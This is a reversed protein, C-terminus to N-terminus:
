IVHKKEESQIRKAKVSDPKVGSLISQIFPAVWKYRFSISEVNQRKTLNIRQRLM